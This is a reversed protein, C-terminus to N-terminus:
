SDRSGNVAARIEFAMALVPPIGSPAVPDCNGAQGVGDGGSLSAVTPLALGLAPPRDRVAPASGAAPPSSRAAPSPPRPERTGGGGPQAIPPCCCLHRITWAVTAFYM